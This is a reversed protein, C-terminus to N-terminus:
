AGAWATSSTAEGIDVGIYVPGKREPLEDTFCSSLDAVDCLMERSPSQPLNMDLAAFSARDSVTVAVRRAENRMYNISKITGLGPNSKRWQGEDDIRAEPDAQYLHVALAFDGRRALIEPVFPGDGHVTLAVIVRKTTVHKVTSLEM